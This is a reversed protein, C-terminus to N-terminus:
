RQRFLRHSVPPSLPAPSFYVKAWGYKGMRYRLLYRAPQYRTYFCTIYESRIHYYHAFHIIAYHWHRIAM